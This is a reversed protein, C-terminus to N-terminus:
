RKRPWDAACWHHASCWHPWDSAIYGAGFSIAILVLLVLYLIVPRRMGRIM